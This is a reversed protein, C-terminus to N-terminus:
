ASANKKIWVGMQEILGSLNKLASDQLVVNDEDSTEYEIVKPFSLDYLEGLFAFQVKMNAPIGVRSYSRDLDKYLFDPAACTIDLDKIQLVAATFTIIKGRYNVILDLQDKVKLKEIPQNAQFLLEKDAPKKLSLFYEVRDKLYIAPINENYMMRLLFEKEINKVPTAM